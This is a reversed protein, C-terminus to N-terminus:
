KGYTGRTIHALVGAVQMKKLHTLKGVIKKSNAGLKREKTIFSLDSKSIKNAYRKKKM